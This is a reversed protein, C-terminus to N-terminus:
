EKPKYKNSWIIAVPILVCYSIVLLIPAVTLTLFGDVPPQALAWYGVALIALAIGFLLYNSKSFPLGRNGLKRVPKNKKQIKEAM